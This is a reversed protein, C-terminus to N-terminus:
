CTRLAALVQRLPRGALDPPILLRRGDALVLEFCSAGRASEDAVVQVPVFAPVETGSARRKWYWLRTEPIGAEDAFARASLGSARWRAMLKAMERRKKERKGMAAEPGVLM